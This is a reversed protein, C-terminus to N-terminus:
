MSFRPVTNEISFNRWAYRSLCASLLAQHALRSVRAVPGVSSASIACVQVGCLAALDDIMLWRDPLSILQHSALERGSSADRESSARGRGRAQLCRVRWVAVDSTMLLGTHPGAHTELGRSDVVSERVEGQSPLAEIPTPDRMM